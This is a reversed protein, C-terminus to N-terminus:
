PGPVAREGRPREQLGHKRSGYEAIGEEGPADRGPDRCESGDDQESRPRLDPAPERRPVGRLVAPAAFPHAAYELPRLWPKQEHNGYEDARLEDGNRGFRVPQDVMQCHDHHDGLYREPYAARDPVPQRALDGGLLV